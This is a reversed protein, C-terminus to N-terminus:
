MRGCEDYSTVGHAIEDEVAPCIHISEEKGTLMRSRFWSVSHMTVDGVRSVKSSPNAM